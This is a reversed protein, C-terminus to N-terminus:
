REMAKVFTDLCKKLEKFRDKCARGYEPFAKISHSDPIPAWGSIAMKLVDLAAIEPQTSNSVSYCVEGTGGYRLKLVAVFRHTKRVLSSYGNIKAWITWFKTKPLVEFQIICSNKKVTEACAANAKAFQREMFEKEVNTM